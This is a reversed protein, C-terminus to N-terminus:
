IYPISIREMVDGEVLTMLAFALIAAGAHKLFVVANELALLNLSWVGAL